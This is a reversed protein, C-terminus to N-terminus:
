STTDNRFMSEMESLVILRGVLILYLTNIERSRVEDVRNDIPLISLEHLRKLERIAVEAIKENGM